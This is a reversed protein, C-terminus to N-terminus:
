INVCDNDYCQTGAKLHIDVLAELRPVDVCDNKLPTVLAVMSGHFM